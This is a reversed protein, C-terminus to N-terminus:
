WATQDYYAELLKEHSHMARGALAELRVCDAHKYGKEDCSELADLEGRIGKVIELDKQLAKILEAKDM